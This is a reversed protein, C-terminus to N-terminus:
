ADWRLVARCPAGSVGEVKLPLATLEGRASRVVDLNVLPALLLIGKRFLPVLMNATAGSEPAAWWAEICPVDVGLLSMPQVMLWPLCEPHFGPGQTVFDPSRWRSAWGCEVLLADGDRVPPCHAQLEALRVLERPGKRPVHCVVAPKIFSTAEFDGLNPAADLLHGATELYTGSLSGLEFRFSEFGDPSRATVRKALFQPLPKPVSPLVNYTWMGHFLPGSLDVVVGM